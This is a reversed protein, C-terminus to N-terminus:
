ERALALGIMRQLAFLDVFVHLEIRCGGLKQVQGGGAQAPRAAGGVAGQLDGARNSIQGPRLTRLHRVHCLGHM